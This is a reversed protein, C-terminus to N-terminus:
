PWSVRYFRHPYNTAQLDTFQFQGSGPSTETAVGLNSWANLPATFNPSALIHYSEGSPNSFRFQFSGDGLRMPSLIPNLFTPASDYLEAIFPAGDSFPGGVILVKRNALLTSTHGSRRNSLSGTFSWTGTALDYLEATALGLGNSDQGGSVLVTGNPLLTATHGARGIALSGTASWTGNTPNYLEANTL